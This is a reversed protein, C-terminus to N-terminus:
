GVQESCGHASSPIILPPLGHPRLWLAAFPSGLGGCREPEAALAAALQKYGDASRLQQLVAETLLQSIDLLAGAVGSWGGAAVAEALLCGFDAGQASVPPCTWMNTLLLTLSACPM